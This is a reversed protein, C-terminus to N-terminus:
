KASSEKGPFEQSGYFTLGELELSRKPLNRSFYNLIEPSFEEM